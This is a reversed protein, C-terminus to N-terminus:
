DWFWLYPPDIQYGTEFPTAWVVRGDALLYARSANYYHHSICLLGDPLTESEWDIRENANRIEAPCARQWSALDNEQLIEEGSLYQVSSLPPEDRFRELFIRLVKPFHWIADAERFKEEDWVPALPTETKARLEEMKSTWVDLFTKEDIVSRLEIQKGVRGLVLYMQHGLFEFPIPDISSDRKRAEFVECCLRAFDLFGTKGNSPYDPELIWWDLAVPVSNTKRAQAMSYQMDLADIVERLYEAANDRLQYFIADPQERNTVGERELAHTIAVRAAILGESASQGPVIGERRLGEVYFRALENLAAIRSTLLGSEKAWGFRRDWEDADIAEGEEPIRGSELARIVAFVRLLVSHAISFQGRGGELSVSWEDGTREACYWGQEYVFDTEVFPERALNVLLELLPADPGAGLTVTKEGNRLRQLGYGDVVHWQFAEFGPYRTDM